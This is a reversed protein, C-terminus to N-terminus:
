PVMPVLDLLANIVIPLLATVASHVPRAIWWIGMWVVTGFAAAAKFGFYSGPVSVAAAFAAPGRWM